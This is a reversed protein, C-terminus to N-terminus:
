MELPREKQIAVGPLVLRMEVGRRRFAVPAILEIPSDSPKESSPPVVAGGLLPGGRVSITIANEEIAVKEILDRVVEARETPSRKLAAALRTARDLMKGTQDSPIGATGVRELLVAPSTLTDTRIARLRRTLCIM